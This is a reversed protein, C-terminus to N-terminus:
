EEDGWKFTYEQHKESIRFRKRDAEAPSNAYEMPTKEKSPLLLDLYSIRNLARLIKILNLFQVSEGKELREITSKAVGSEEALKAQTLESRIREAKLREGMEILIKEDTCFADVKV